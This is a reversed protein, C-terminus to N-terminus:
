MISVLKEADLMELKQTFQELVAKQAQEPDILYPLPRCVTTLVHLASRYERESGTPAITEDAACEIVQEREALSRIM